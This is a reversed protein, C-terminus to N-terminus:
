KLLYDLHQELSVLRQDEDYSYMVRVMRAANLSGSTFAPSFSNPSLCARNLKKWEGKILHKVHESAKKEDVAVASGNEERYCNAYSGDYGKQKEDQASGLDDWLRLLTAPASILDPMAYYKHFSNVSCDIDHNAGQDGLMSLLHLLVMPMGSSIVGNRLYEEAPPLHGSNFWKAEILFANCLAAWSKRLMDIPNWGHEKLIMDSIEHTIKYLASFCIQMYGPLSDIGEIDWRNVAETFRILEDLSGYTDFIDDILYVFSIPKTLEVRWKSHRPDPVLALSWMFWKLPQNRAFKLQHWLGLDRWWESLHRLEEVHLSQQYNFDLKAVEYLIEPAINMKGGTIGLKPNEQLYFKTGYSPLTLHYPNDLAYVAARKIAASGLTPLRAAIQKRAFDGAEQVLKDEGEIGLYSAEYLALLGTVDDGSQTKFRGMGDQFRDFVNPFVYYGHQRLLRFGTAVDYMSMFSSVSTGDTTGINMFQEYCLSLLLEIEQPFHHHIGLRQLSDIMQVARQYSDTGSSPRKILDRVQEVKYDLLLECPFASTNNHLSVRVTGRSAGDCVGDLAALRGPFSLRLPRLSM